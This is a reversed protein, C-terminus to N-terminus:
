GADRELDDLDGRVMSVFEACDKARRHLAKWDRELQKFWQTKLVDSSIVLQVPVYEGAPRYPDAAEVHSRAVFARVRVVHSPELERQVYCRRIMARAQLLRYEHAAVSDDWTFAHHLPHYASRAAEVILEPSLSGNADHIRELEEHISVPANGAPEISM